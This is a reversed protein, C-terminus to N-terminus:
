VIRKTPLTLHTYSVADLNYDKLDKCFNKNWQFIKECDMQYNRVLHTEDGYYEACAAISKPADIM